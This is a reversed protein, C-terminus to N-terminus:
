DKPNALSWAIQFILSARKQLLQYDIKDATDTTQHYDPHEGDMFFLAPIHRKAFNYHDSRYFYRNPDYENDYRYDLTLNFSLHNSEKVTSRLEPFFHPGILYCYDSNKRHTKDRRGVMDVNLNYRINEHLFPSNELFYKSGILGGEEGSFLLFCLSRRSRIGQKQLSDCLAAMALIAATGSANDDAGHFIGAKSSGLHDYHATIIVIEKKLDTGVFIGGINQGELTTKKEFETSPKETLTYLGGMPIVMGTPMTLNFYYSQSFLWLSDTKFIPLAHTARLSKVCYNRAIEQGKMGTKRGQMSDAALTYVHQQLLNESVLASFINEQAVTFNVIFFLYVVWFFRM